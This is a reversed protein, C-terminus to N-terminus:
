KDNCNSFLADQEPTWKHRVINRMGLIRRRVLIAARTRQLQRAADDITLKRVIHSEEHM